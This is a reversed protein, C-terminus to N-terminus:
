NVNIVKVFSLLYGVDLILQLLEDFYTSTRTGTYIHTYLFTYTHTYINLIITFYYRKTNCFDNPDKYEHHIFYIRKLISSYLEFRSHTEYLFIDCDDM